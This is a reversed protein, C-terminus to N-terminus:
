SIFLLYGVFTITWAIMYFPWVAKGVTFLMCTSFVLCMILLLKEM